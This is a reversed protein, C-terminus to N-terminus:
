PEYHKSGQYFRTQLTSSYICCVYFASLIKLVFINNPYPNFCIIIGQKIVTPHCFLNVYLLIFSFGTNTCDPSYLVLIQGM